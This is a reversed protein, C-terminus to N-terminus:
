SRRSSKDDSLRHEVTGLADTLRMKASGRRLPQPQGPGPAWGTIWIMEITTHLPADPAGAQRKGETKWIDLARTWVARPMPRRRREALANTEGAGRLDALLQAASTWAVPQAQVDAVPMAFGARQALAGADRVDAMPLVRPSLGKTVEAEARALAARLEQLTRGGPFVALFLGDPKLARRAQILQGLPDDAWHLALAHIALDYAAPALPLVTEDLFVEINPLFDRWLEPFSTIVLPKTFTRNVESLRDKLESQVARHLEAAALLGLRRARARHLALANRDTLRPPTM